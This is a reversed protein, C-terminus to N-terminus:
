FSKNSSLERSLLFIKKLDEKNFKDKYRSLFEDKRGELLVKSLNM